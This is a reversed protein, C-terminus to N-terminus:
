STSQCISRAREFVQRLMEATLKGTSTPDAIRVDDSTWAVTSSTVVNGSADKVTAHIIYRGRFMAADTMTFLLYLTVAAGLIVFLGV